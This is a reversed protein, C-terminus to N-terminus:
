LTLCAADLAPLNYVPVVAAGVAPYMQRVSVRPVHDGVPTGKRRSTAPSVQLDPSHEYQSDKLLSDSGAFDVTNYQVSEKGTTSGTAQPPLRAPEPTVSSPISPQQSLDRACRTPHM